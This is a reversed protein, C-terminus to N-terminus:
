KTAERHHRFGAGWGREYAAKEIHPAAAELIHRANERASPMFIAYDEPTLNDGDSYGADRDVDACREEALIAAVAEVAAEPIM